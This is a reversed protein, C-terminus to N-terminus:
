RLKLAQTDTKPRRWYWYALAFCALGTLAGLADSIWDGLEAHRGPVPIQLLEDLLAYALLVAYLVGLVRWTIVRQTASTLSLLLALGLYAGFHLLKDNTAGSPLSGQPLHTGTCLALWYLALLCIAARGLWTQRRSNM